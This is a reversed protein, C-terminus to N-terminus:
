SNRRMVNAQTCRKVPTSGVAMLGVAEVGLTIRPIDDAGATPASACDYNATLDVKGIDFWLQTVKIYSLDTVAEWDTVTATCANPSNILGSYMYVINNVLKFGYFREDETATSHSLLLCDTNAFYHEGNAQKTLTVGVNAYGAKRIESSMVNTLVQITQEFRQQKTAANSSNLTAMFFGGAGILVILGITIGIMLEILTFGTEKKM